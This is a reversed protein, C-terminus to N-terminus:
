ILLSLCICMCFSFVCVRARARVCVCVRARARVCVGVCAGGGCFYVHFTHARACTSAHLVCLYARAFCVLVPM